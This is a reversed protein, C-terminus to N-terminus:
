ANQGNRSNKHSERFNSIEAEGEMIGIEVHYHRTEGPALVALTGAERERARGLVLCNAPEMGLVYTGEDLMKWQIFRPFEDTSFRCYVGLGTSGNITHNPNIVATTVTKQDKGFRHFYCKENYGPEPSHLRHWTELGNAAEADRPETEISPVCLEATKDVVPYGINIHYLFMHEAPKHALNEVADHLQITRSGLRTTITRTLELNEGFVTTERVKGRVTIIYDNGVWTGEGVAGSAPLNSVRGHLGLFRDGDRGAAGAYSMGCTTLLGGQFSRLWGLGNEAESNFYAPHVDGTSSQWALSRGCYRASSIDLGRDALVDFELGSGTYVEFVRLGGETGGERRVTRVGALQRIDGVRAVIEERTLAQNFVTAM